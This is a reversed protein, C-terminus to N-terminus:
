GDIYQLESDDSKRRRAEEGVVEEELARKRHTMM